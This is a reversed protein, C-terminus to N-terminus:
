FLPPCGGRKEHSHSIELQLTPGVTTDDRRTNGREMRCQFIIFVILVQRASSPQLKAKATDWSEACVTRILPVSQLGPDDTVNPDFWILTCAVPAHIDTLAGAGVNADKFGVLAVGPVDTVAVPVLKTLPEVVTVTPPAAAVTTLTVEVVTTNLTGAM